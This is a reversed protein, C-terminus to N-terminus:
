FFSLDLSASFDEVVKEDDIAQIIDDIEEVNQDSNKENM